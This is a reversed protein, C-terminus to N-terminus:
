GKPHEKDWHEWCKAKNDFNNCSSFFDSCRCEEWDPKKDHDATQYWWAPCTFNRMETGSEFRDGKLWAEYTLGGFKHENGGVKIGPNCQLVIEVNDRNERKEFVEYEHTFHFRGTGKCDHCVVAYPPESMRQYLGTGNCSKCKEDFEIKM